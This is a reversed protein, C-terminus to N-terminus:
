LGAEVEDIVARLKQFVAEMRKKVLGNIAQEVVSLEAAGNSGDHKVPNSTPLPRGPRRPQVGAATLWKRLRPIDGKYGAERAEVLIEDWRRGKNRAARGIEVIKEKVETTYDEMTGKDQGDSGAQKMVGVMKMLYSLQGVYGQKRAAELADAWKGNEKAARAAEIIRSKTADDYRSPRSM